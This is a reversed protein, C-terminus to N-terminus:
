VEGRESRSGSESSVGIQPDCNVRHQKLCGFLGESVAGTGEGCPLGTM